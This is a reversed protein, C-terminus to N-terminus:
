IGPISINYNQDLYNVSDFDYISQDSLYQLSSPRSGLCYKRLLKMSAFLTKRSPNNHHYLDGALLILDVDNSQALQLIEEFTNISDNGRIPDTDMYGLHNDTAILIKMSM